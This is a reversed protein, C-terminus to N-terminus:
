IGMICRLLGDKSIPDFYYEACLEELATQVDVYAYRINSLRHQIEENHRPGLNGGNVRCIKLYGKEIELYIELKGIPLERSHRVSSKPNNGYNWEWTKYKGERLEQISALDELTPVYEMLRDDTIILQKLTEKLRFVDMNDNLYQKINTVSSRVSKVGKSLIGNSSVNFLERLIELNTDFLLTGHYLLRDKHLAMASGSCKKGDVLLDNRSSVDVRLGLRSLANVIPRIFKSKDIEHSTINRMIFSFCLNGHDHFVAGGGSIRRLVQIHYANAATVNIEEPINQFRGIIIAPENQWLMFIDEGIDKSKLFYEEFALNVDPKCSGTEIYQM